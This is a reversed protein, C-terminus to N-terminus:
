QCLVYVGFSSNLQYPLPRLFLNVFWDVASMVNGAKCNRIVIGTLVTLLRDIESVQEELLCEGVQRLMAGLVIKLGM